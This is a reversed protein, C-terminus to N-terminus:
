DALQKTIDELEMVRRQDVTILADLRNELINLEKRKEALGIQSIRTKIDSEWNLFSYGMWRFPLSIKLNECSQIWFSYRTLIFGYIDVLKNVDTITQINVRNDVSNSNESFSCHTLWSAKETASIEKKKEKLFISFM